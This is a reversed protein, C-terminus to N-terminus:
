QKENSSDTAGRIAYTVVRPNTAGRVRVPILNKQASKVPPVSIATSDKEKVVKQNKILFMLSDMKNKLENIQKKSISDTPQVLGPAQWISDTLVQVRKKLFTNEQQLRENLIENKVFSINNLNFFLLFLTTIVFLVLSAYIYRNSSKFIGFMVLIIAIVVLAVIGWLMRYDITTGKQVVPAKKEQSKTIAFLKEDIQKQTEITKKIEERLNTISKEQKKVLGQTTTDAVSVVKTEIMKGLFFSCAVVCLLFFIIANASKKIKGGTSIKKIEKIKLFIVVLLVIVIALILYPSNAVFFLKIEEWYKKLLVFCFYSIIFFAVVGGVILVTKKNKTCWKSFRERITPTVLIADEISDQPIKTKKM